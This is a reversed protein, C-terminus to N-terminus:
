ISENLVRLCVKSSSNLQKRITIHLPHYQQAKEPTLLTM